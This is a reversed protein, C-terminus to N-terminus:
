DIDLKKRVAQLYARAHRCSSLFVVKRGAQLDANSFAIVFSFIQALKRPAPITGCLGSATSNFSLTTTRVGVGEAGSFVGHSDLVGLLM